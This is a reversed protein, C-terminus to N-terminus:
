ANYLIWDWEFCVLVTTIPCTGLRRLAFYDSDGVRLIIKIERIALSGVLDHHFRDEWDPGQEYDRIDYYMVVREMREFVGQTIECLILGCLTHCPSKPAGTEISIMLIFFMDGVSVTPEATKWDFNPYSDSDKFSLKAEPPIHIDFSAPSRYRSKRLESINATYTVGRLTVSTDEVEGM